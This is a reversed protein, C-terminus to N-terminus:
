ADVCGVDCYTKQETLTISVIGMYTPVHAKAGDGQIVVLGM